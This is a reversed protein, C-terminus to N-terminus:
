LTLFPKMKSLYESKNSLLLNPDTDKTRRKKFPVERFQTGLAGFKM